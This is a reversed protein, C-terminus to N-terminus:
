QDNPNDAHYREERKPGNQEFHNLPNALPFVLIIRSALIGVWHFGCRFLEISKRDGRRPEWRNKDNKDAPTSVVQRIMRDGRRPESTGCLGTPVASSYFFSYGNLCLGLPAVPFFLHHKIWCCGM